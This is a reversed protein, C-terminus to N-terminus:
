TRSGQQKEVKKLSDSFEDEGMEDIRMPKIRPEIMRAMLEHEDIRNDEEFWREEKFEEILNMLVEEDWVEIENEGM